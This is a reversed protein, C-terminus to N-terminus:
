KVFFMSTYFLNIHYTKIKIKIFKRICYTKSLKYKSMLEHISLGKQRDIKLSDILAKPHRIKGSMVFYLM